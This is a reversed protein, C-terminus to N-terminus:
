DLSFGVKVTMVVEIARGNLLTPSFRWQRVADAAATALDPHADGSIVRVSTVTGDEAIVADLNVTGERGAARMSDPYVPKVDVLKRPVRINGGVRVPAAPQPRTATAPATIRTSRVSITEQLTGVQLTIARDWDRADKLEFEQRLARFGPLTASLVYKGAPVGAIQFRGDAGTQATKKQTADELSLTVGPIVAGTPDYVAGSFYTPPAQKARLAAVPVAVALLLAAALVAAGRSLAQRNLRPNLMAVIRRELTSPHAMPMASVRRTRSPRCRRALALLHTAYDRAAIGRGLVADDCAQEAARRLRTCVIWILPNFWLVTRMAEAGIQVAWDYRRVHALEHSLVAHMRDRSWERAHAPLLVSPRRLGWTAVLDAADTEILSVARRIDYSAAVEAALASWEANAAPRGRRVIARLRLVGALLSAAAFASGAFWVVGAIPSDSASLPTEAARVAAAAPDAAVAAGVSRAPARPALVAAADWRAELPVDWAPVVLSLPVVAFAAAVSAALVFHRLAAARSRLALDFLLGAALMATTRIVVDLWPTM